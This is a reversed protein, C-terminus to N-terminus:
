ENSKGNGRQEQWDWWYSETSVFEHIVNIDLLTRDRSIVYGNLKWM